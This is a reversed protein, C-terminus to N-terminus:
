SPTRPRVKGLRVPPREGSAAAPEILFGQTRNGALDSEKQWEFGSGLGAHWPGTRRGDYRCRLDPSGGKPKTGSATRKSLWLTGFRNLSVGRAREDYVPRSALDGHECQLSHSKHAHLAFCPLHRM